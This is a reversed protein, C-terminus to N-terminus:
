KGQNPYLAEAASKAGGKDAGTVFTAEGMAKAIKHFGKIVGPHSGFGTQQLFEAVEPPFFKTLAAKAQAAVAEFQKPDGKGLEPDALAASEWGDVRKTWAEGDPAESKQIADLRAAVTANVHDLVKQGHENSLGLEKAVASTKEIVDPTIAAGDALKLEYKEPPKPLSAKFTEIAKDGIDKVKVAEQESAERATKQEPTENEPITAPADGGKTEDAM